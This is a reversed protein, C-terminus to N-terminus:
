EKIEHALTFATLKVILQEVVELEEEKYAGRRQAGEISKLANGVDQVTLPVPDEM